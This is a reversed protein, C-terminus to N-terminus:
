GGGAAPPRPIPLPLLGDIDGRQQSPVICRSLIDQVQKQQEFIMRVEEKRLDSATRLTMFLMGILALVVVVMGLLVPNSGMATVLGSAVKGVEEGAGM